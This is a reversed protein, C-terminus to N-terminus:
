MEPRGPLAEGKSHSVGVAQYVGSMGAGAKAPTFELPFGLGLQTGAVPTGAVRADRPAGRPSSRFLNGRQRRSKM